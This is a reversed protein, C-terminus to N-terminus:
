PSTRFGYKYVRVFFRHLCPLLRWFTVLVKRNWTFPVPRFNYGPWHRLLMPDLKIKLGPPRGGTSKTLPYPEKPLPTPNRSKTPLELVNSTSDQTFWPDLGCESEPPHNTHCWSSRTVDRGVTYYIGHNDRERRGNIIHISPGTRGFHRYRPKTM